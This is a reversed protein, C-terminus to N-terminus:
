IQYGETNYRYLEEGRIDMTNIYLIALNYKGKHRKVIKEKLRNAGPLHNQSKMDHDKDLSYFTSAARGGLGEKWYVILKTLSKKKLESNM